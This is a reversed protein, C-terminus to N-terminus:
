VLSLHYDELLKYIRKIFAKLEKPSISFEDNEKAQLVRKYMDELLDLAQDEFEDDEVELNVTFKPFIEIIPHFNYEHFEILHAIRQVIEINTLYRSNSIIFSEDTFLEAAQSRIHSAQRAIRYIANLIGKGFILMHLRKLTYISPM